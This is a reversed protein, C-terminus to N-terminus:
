AILLGHHMLGALLHELNDRSLSSADEVDTKALADLLADEDRTGDLLPLLQQEVADLQVTTHLLTPLIPSTKLLNRALPSAVPRESVTWALRPVHTHLELFNDSYFNVLM